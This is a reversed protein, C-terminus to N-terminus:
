KRRCGIPIMVAQEPTWGRKLRRSIVSQRVGLKISWDSQLLTLGNCTIYVNSRRNRSQQMRNEWRVNGPHYGINNNIRGVSYDGEPKKGIHKYFSKFSDIWEQHITLGRGGYDAYAPCLESLCRYKMHSWSKYEPTRAMGHRKNAPHEDQICGCSRVGGCKLNSSSAVTINKCTCTCEWYYVRKGSPKLKYGSFSKVTLRDFTVGTLNKFRPNTPMDCHIIEKAM